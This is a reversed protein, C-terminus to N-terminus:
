QLVEPKKLTIGRRTAEACLAYLAVFCCQHWEGDKEISAAAATDRAAEAAAERLGEDTLGTIYDSWKTDM